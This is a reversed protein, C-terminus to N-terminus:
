MLECSNTLPLCVWWVGTCALMRVNAELVNLGPLEKGDCEPRYAFASPFVDAGDDVGGAITEVKETSELRKLEWRRFFM